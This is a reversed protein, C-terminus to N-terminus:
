LEKNYIIKRIAKLPISIDDEHNQLIIITKDNEIHREIYAVYGPWSGGHRTMKSYVDFKEIEWGMSYSTQTKDNLTAVEFIAKMGEETLLTNKYLARDWKLLDIVTTNIAGDGVVGDLWVVFKTQEFNDPLIYGTVSDPSFYGYAYNNVKKPYLRRNYVFTNKMKLPKFIFKQVYDAYTLGSVNEIITALLAYGTDGYLFKSNAAFLVKPKYKSYLEVIDKNTAIKSKDFLSDMIGMYEPLGGTHNLLNRVTIGNYYSLEPIYKNFDDDLNLKGKEKLMMIAMATFQKSISGIDFISHQNLKEKTTLNAFGFSNLYIIKGKEAVLVNGSFDDTAYLAKLLSDIKKAKHQGFALQAILILLISLKIKM